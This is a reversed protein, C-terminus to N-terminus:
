DGLIREPFRLGTDVEGAAKGQLGKGELPSVLYPHLRMVCRGIKMDPKGPMLNEIKTLTKSPEAAMVADM